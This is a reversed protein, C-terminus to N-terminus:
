LRTHPKAHHDNEQGQLFRKRIVRSKWIVQEESYSQEEHWVECNSVFSSAFLRMHNKTTESCTTEIVKFCIVELDAGVLFSSVFCCSHVIYANNVFEVFNQFYVLVFYVLNSPKLRRRSLTSSLTFASSFRCFCSFSALIILRDLWNASSCLNLSFRSFSIIKCSLKM